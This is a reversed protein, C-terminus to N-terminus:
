MMSFTCGVQTAGFLAVLDVVSGVQCDVRFLCVSSGEVVGFDSGDATVVLGAFRVRTTYACVSSRREVRDVLEPALVADVAARGGGGTDCPVMRDLDDGHFFEFAEVRGVSGSPLCTMSESEVVEATKFLVDTTSM